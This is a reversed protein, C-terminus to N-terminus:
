ELIQVRHQKPQLSQAQVALSVPCAALTDGCSSAWRASGRLLYPPWFSVARPSVQPFRLPWTSWGPGMGATSNVQRLDGVSNWDKNLLEKDIAEEQSLMRPSAWLHSTVDKDM